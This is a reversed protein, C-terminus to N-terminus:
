EAIIKGFGILKGFSTLQYIYVGNSLNKREILIDGSNIENNTYVVQGYMNYILLSYSNGTQYPFVFQASQTFPNPYVKIADIDRIFPSYNGTHIPPTSSCFTTNPLSTTDCTQYLSFDVVGLASNDAKDFIKSAIVLTDTTCWCNNKMTSTITGLQLINYLINSCIKNNAIVGVTKSAIVGTTNHHIANNVMSDTSPASNMKCEVGFKNYAFESGSLKSFGGALATDNKYFKCNRIVDDGTGSFIAIKNECFQSNLITTTYLNQTLAAGNKIFTSYNIMINDTHTIGTLNDIFLCSDLRARLTFNTIPHGLCIKNKSFTSNKFEFITNNVRDYSVACAAYSFRCFKINCEGASSNTFRIGQWIGPSPLTDNSTFFISDASTGIAHLIGGKIELYTNNDFKVTVGPQITLKVGSMLTITDTVIYPSNTTTWTTDATINSNIITQAISCLPLALIATLSFTTIFNKM